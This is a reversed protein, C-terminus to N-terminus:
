LLAETQWLLERDAYPSYGINKYRIVGEQDIVFLTPIGTVGFEAPLEDPAFLVDFTYGYEALFPRVASTDSEWCNVSFFRVNEVDQDVYEQLLPMTMRCPGCWTAWFDLVVVNGRLDELSVTEGELNVLSFAPAPIELKDSLAKQMLEERRDELEALREKRWERVNIRIKELAEQYDVTERIPELDPSSTLRRVDAYGAEIADNIYAMASDVQDLRLYDKSLEFFAEGIDAASEAADRGIRILEHRYTIADAWRQAQEYIDVLERRVWRHDLNEEAFDILVQEAAATNGMENYIEAMMSYPGFENPTIATLKEAAELSNDYDGQALYVGAIQRYPMPNTPDIESCRQYAAIAASTDRSEGTLYIYAMGFHGWFYDNDIEIAEAFYPAAEAGSLARGLLYNYMAVNPNAEQLQKYEGIKEQSFGLRDLWDQYERHMVTSNPYQDRFYEVIERYGERTAEEPSREYAELSDSLAVLEPPEQYVGLDSPPQTETTEGCSGALIIVALASVIILAKM